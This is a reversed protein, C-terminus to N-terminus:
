NLGWEERLEDNINKIEDEDLNKEPVTENNNRPTKILNKPSDISVSYAKCHNLVRNDASIVLIKSGPGAEKIIRIIRSDADNAYICRIGREEFYDDGEGPEGRVDFVVCLKGKYRSRTDKSLMLDALGQRAAELSIDLKKLLDPIKYIINYGDLIILDYMHSM